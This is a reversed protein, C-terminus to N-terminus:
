VNKLYIAGTANDRGKIPVIYNALYKRELRKPVKLKQDIYVAEHIINTLIDNKKSKRIISKIKKDTIMDTVGDSFLLIMEYNNDIITSSIICLEKCIGICANIISNNSFYRLDDKKVAGYKYYMWVDSDDETIQILKKNQYIYARSDGINIILTNKQNILALTLTTGLKDEGYKKILNTNLVKIYKKILKEAQKANKLVKAEKKQFWKELSKAVYKSAEEGYSRGGMGDAVILLKINKNNPHTIAVAVDENQERILGVDTKTELIEM